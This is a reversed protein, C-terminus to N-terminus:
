HRFRSSDRVQFVQYCRYSIEPLAYADRTRKGLRFQKFFDSRVSERVESGRAMPDYDNLRCLIKGEKYEMSTEFIFEIEFACLDMNTHALPINLAKKPIISLPVSAGNMSGLLPCITIQRRSLAM